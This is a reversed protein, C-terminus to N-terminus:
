LASYKSNSGVIGTKYNKEKYEGVAKDLSDRVESKPIQSDDLEVIKEINDSGPLISIKLKKTQDHYFGEEDKNYKSIVIKDENLNFQRFHDEEYARLEDQVEKEELLNPDTITKLNKVTEKIHGIPTSRILYKIINANNASDM